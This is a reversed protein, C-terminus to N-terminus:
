NGCKGIWYLWTEIDELCAKQNAERESHPRLPDGGESHAGGQAERKPCQPRSSM